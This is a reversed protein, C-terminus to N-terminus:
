LTEIVKVKIKNEIIFDKLKKGDENPIGVLLDRTTDKPILYSGNERVFLFDVRDWNSSIKRDGISEYEYGNEEFKYIVNRKESLLKKRMKKISNYLKFNKIILVFVMGVMCTLAIGIIMFSVSKVGQYIRMFIYILVALSIIFWVATTCLWVPLKAFWNDIRNEPNKKIKQISIGTNIYEEIYDSSISKSEILM